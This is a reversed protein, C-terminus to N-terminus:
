QDRLRRGTLSLFVTELDPQHISLTKFTIGSGAIRAMEELPKDTQLRLHTGNIEADNLLENDAPPSLLEAEIVSDGGYKEMLGALTDAALVKGNDIIAIRDCLREAEEMYHTTYIITKGQEKLKEISEFIHNRSQPDVGVTPEDLLIVPPDHVLACALNLRRKMGGSYTGVRDNKRESLGAFELAWQVRSRLKSKSLNYLSGFFRLNEAATLEDYLSLSQPAVGIMKRVRSRTPDTEENLKVTGSDPKLAGVIMNITTTKGAGNPGLLGFTEGAAVTFSIGDVARTSGFSRKLDTVEIM